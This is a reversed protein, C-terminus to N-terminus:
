CFYLKLWPRYLSGSSPRLGFCTPTINIHIIIYIKFMELNLLLANTPSHVIYLNWLARHLSLLRLVTDHLCSFMSVMYFTEDRHWCYKLRRIRWDNRESIDYSCTKMSLNIKDPISRVQIRSTGIEFIPWSVSKGSRPKDHNGETGVWKDWNLVPTPGWIHAWDRGKM